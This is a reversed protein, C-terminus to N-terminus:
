AALETRRLDETFRATDEAQELLLQMGGVLAGVDARSGTLRSHVLEFQDPFVELQAAMARDRRDRLALETLREDLTALLPRYVDEQAPDRALEATLATVRDRTRNAAEEVTVLAVEAAVSPPTAQAPDAVAPYIGALNCHFLLRERVMALYAGLMDDLGDVIAHALLQGPGAGAEVLAATHDRLEVLRRYSRPYDPLHKRRLWGGCPTRTVLQDLQGELWVRRVQRRAQAAEREEARQAAASTTSRTAVHLWMPQGLGYLILPLPNWTVASLALAGAGTLLNAPAALARRARSLWPLPRTTM